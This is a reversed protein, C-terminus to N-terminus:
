FGKLIEEYRNQLNELCEDCLYAEKRDQEELSNPYARSCNATTCRPIDIVFGASSLAQMVTRKIYLSF